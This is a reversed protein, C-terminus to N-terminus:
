DNQVVNKYFMINQQVIKELNFKELVIKRANKEIITVKEQNNFSWLIKEAIDIPNKPNCLLGNKKNEIIEQGVGFETFIVLKEMAMAEVVVLGQAEALSPFVCISAQAYKEAIESHKIAGHFTIDNIYLQYMKHSKVKEIFSTGDIFFWDKGYIELTAHPIQKKVIDFADILQQIGKKKYVTGVFVIRFFNTEIKDIPMFLNLDIPNYIQEIKKGNYSLYKETETKVHNSVAIFADAKSFSRKEQFAKWWNTKGNEALFHHGGHLRICYKIAIQKTIFAQGLETTEVVNLPIISNIQKLKTNIDFANLFWNFGKLNNPKLRYIHLNDYLEEQYNNEYNFGIISVKINNKVLELAMTKIFSGVGGHSFGEKPYESTIFCIHM